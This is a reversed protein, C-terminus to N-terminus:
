QALAAKLAEEVHPDVLWDPSKGYRVLEKATSSSVHLFQEQGIVYLIPIRTLRANVGHQTFEDNFDSSGRLGRLIADVALSEAFDVLAGEFSQVDVRDAWGRMALSHGILSQSQSIDLCRTKKAPNVGIAVTARDFVRLGKELVDAHGITFPDFSGAYLVHSM